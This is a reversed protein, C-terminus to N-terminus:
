CVPTAGPAADAFLRREALVALAAFGAGARLSYDIGGPFLCSDGARLRQADEGPTTLSMEGDLVFLFLFAGAHRGHMRASERGSVTRIVCVDALGNTAAAIGTERSEFDQSAGSLGAGREWVGERARSRVFRQEGWIRDPRVHATPLTLEHDRWTEHRAPCSIELVELGAASELVRHRIGPPQLVCDGARMVFPAGQDEYVLRAQGTLCFIMQFGVKHYHVYDAVAGGGPIRIHSAIVAGALRGPILDRYQMGARG